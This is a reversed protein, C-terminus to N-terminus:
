LNLITKASLLSALAMESDFNQDPQMAITYESDTGIGKKAKEGIQRRENNSFNSFTRRLIPLLDDFIKEDLDYMWNYLINWITNDLILIMASGKLFGEIWAASHMPEEGVSLARSFGAQVKQSDFRQADLLIRYTAGQILYSVGIENSTQELADIWDNVLEESGLLTIVENLKSILNFIRIAMEDDLGYCATPLNINIKSLLNHILNLLVAQDTQRIDSYRSIEILPIVAELLLAVDSSLSVVKEIRNIIFDVSDFLEAIISSQILQTLQGVDNSNKAMDNVYNQAAMEIDNGWIAKDIIQLMIEPQWALTWVEKFTGKSRVTKLEAWKIELVALRHLFISKELGRPERLDLQYTKEDERIQLRYRKVKKDFDTQIPLKPMDAPVRGMSKGITLNEKVYNLQVDDGMCIVSIIAEDMEALGPRSLNRMAALSTALRYTEIVHATSVDFEKERFVSAAKILWKKGDDQQYKWLHEYWGPSDLGAGYGSRWSLRSNLWPIWSTKVKKKPLKKMLAQDSKKKEAYKLLAPAHWAGCVFVIKEFGEKQAKRIAERMFAERLENEHYDINVYNQRLATMVSLVAEFHEAASVLQKQEFYHEWWLDASTYGDAQAIAELPRPHVPLPFKEVEQNEENGEVEEAELSQAKKEQEAAEIGYSYQLPLDATLLKINNAQAFIFAQWEPSYEAFPYFASQKLNDPNYTLIALPPKFRKLDIAEISEMLEMPGEVLILDPQIEKLRQATNIASGVGHHRIGLINIEM